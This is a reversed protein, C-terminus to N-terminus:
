YEDDNGEAPDGIALYIIVLVLCLGGIGGLLYQLWAPIM